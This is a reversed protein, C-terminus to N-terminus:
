IEEPWVNEEVWEIFSSVRMYVSPSRPFLCDKGFSSIGIVEYQCEGYVPFQLPGGFDGQCVDKGHKLMGACLTRSDFGNPLRGNETIENRFTDNCKAEDFVDVTVRLLEMKPNHGLGIGSWRSAINYIYGVDDNPRLCAPHLDKSVLSFSHDTISPGIEILGIDEYTAPPSYEPHAIKRVVEHIQGRRDYLKGEEPPFIQMGLLVWKVPGYKNDELCQATTLVFKESILSGSCGWHINKQPGYGIAAMHPFIKPLEDAM